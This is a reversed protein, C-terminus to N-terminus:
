WVGEQAEHGLHCGGSWGWGHWLVFRGHRHVHVHDHDFSSCCVSPLLLLLCLQRGTVKTSRAWSRIKLTVKNAKPVDTDHCHETPEALVENRDDTIM